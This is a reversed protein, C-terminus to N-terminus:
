RRAEALIEAETKCTCTSGPGSVAVDCEAGHHKNKEIDYWGFYERAALFGAAWGETDEVRGPAAAVLARRLEELAGPPVEFVEAGTGTVSPVAQEVLAAAYAAVQDPAAGGVRGTAAYLALNSLDAPYLPFEERVARPLTRLGDDNDLLHVPMALLFANVRRGSAAVYHPVVPPGETEEEEAEAPELRELEGRLEDIIDVLVGLAPAGLLHPATRALEEVGQRRRAISDTM